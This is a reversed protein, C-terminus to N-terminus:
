RSGYKSLTASPGSDDRAGFMDTHALQLSLANKGAASAAVSAARRWQWVCLDLLGADSASTAAQVWRKAATDAYLLTPDSRRKM